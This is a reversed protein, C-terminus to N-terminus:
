ARAGTGAMLRADIRPPAGIPDPISGALFLPGRVGVPVAASSAEPATEVVTLISEEGAEEVTLEVLSGPLFEDREAGGADPDVLAPLWRFAFRRPVEVTEVVARHVRGEADRVVIRGGPRAQVSVVEAGFWRSLEEPRTIAAWLEWCGVPFRIQRKVQTREAM